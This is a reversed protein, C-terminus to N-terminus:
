INMSDNCLCMHANKSDRTTPICVARNVQKSVMIRLSTKKKLGLYSMKCTRDESFSKM